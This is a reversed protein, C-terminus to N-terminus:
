RFLYLLINLGWFFSCQALVYMFAVPNEKRFNAREFYWLLGASIIFWAVYNQLPITNNEWSWFDYTIAVPEILFDLFVVCFAIVIIRIPSSVKWDVMLIGASYILALWNLGITLPVGIVKWGLTEGYQYHGFILGTHVGLAEVGFGILYTVICYIVFSRNWDQHFIMMIFLSTVLHFPVLSKFFEESETLFLGALGTLHMAPLIIWCTYEFTSSARLSSFFAKM